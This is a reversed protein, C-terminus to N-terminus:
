LLAAIWRREGRFFLYLCALFNAGMIWAFVIPGNIFFRVGRNGLGFYGKYILTLFLVGVSVSVLGWLVRTEGYESLLYAWITTAILTALIAGEIKLLAYSPNTTALATLLLICFY